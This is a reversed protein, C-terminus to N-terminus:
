DFYMAGCSLRWTCITIWCPDGHIHVAPWSLNDLSLERTIRYMHYLKPIPSMGLVLCHLNIQLVYKTSIFLAPRPNTKWIENHMNQIAGRSRSICFTAHEVDLYLTWPAFIHMRVFSITYIVKNYIHIIIYRHFAHCNFYSWSIDLYNSIRIIHVKGWPVSSSSQYATSCTRVSSNACVCEEAPVWRIRQQLIAMIVWKPSSLRRLWHQDICPGHVDIQVLTEGARLHVKRSTPTTTGFDSRMLLGVTEMYRGTSLNKM